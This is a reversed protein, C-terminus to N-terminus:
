KATRDLEALLEDAYHARWAFYLAKLGHKTITRSRELGAQIPAASDGFYFDNDIYEDRWCDYFWDPMEPANMAMMERKTLGTAESTSKEVNGVRQDAVVPMAPMDANKM